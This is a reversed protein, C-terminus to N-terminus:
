LRVTLFIFNLKFFSIKAGFGMRKNLSERYTFSFQNYLQNYGKDNFIDTYRPDTFRRLDSFVAFTENTAKIHTDNRLQWSFGMESEGEVSKLLRFMFLYNNTHAILSNDKGGFPVDSTVEGDIALRRFSEQAPGTFTTNVSINPIFFNFAYRRSTDIQFARQSPNEFTDFLTRSNYLAYQQASCVTTLISLLCLLSIKKM